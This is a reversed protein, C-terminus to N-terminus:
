LLDYTMDRLALDFWKVGNQGRVGRQCSPSLIVVDGM